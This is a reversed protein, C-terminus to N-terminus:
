PALRGRLTDLGYRRIPPTCQDSRAGAMHTVAAVGNLHGSPWEIGGGVAGLPHILALTQGAM